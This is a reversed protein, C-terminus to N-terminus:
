KHDVLGNDMAYRVLTTSNHIRLKHMINARHTDVTRPSLFLAKGIENSSLGNAIFQLIQKERATLLDMAEENGAKQLKKETYKGVLAIAGESFYREGSVVRRIAKIIEDGPANKLLYGSVGLEIMRGLFMEDEHMTLVIVRVTSKKKQLTKAIDIGSMGPLSIDLLIVDPKLTEIKQLATEGSDVEGVVKFGNEELLNRIGVRVMPHDDILLISTNKM